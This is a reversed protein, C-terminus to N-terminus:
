SNAFFSSSATNTRFYLALERVLNAVNYHDTRYSEFPQALAKWKKVSHILQNVMPSLISDPKKADAAARLKEAQAQVGLRAREPAELAKLDEAVLTTIESVKAFEEQLMEFLQRASDLEGREKWLYLALERVLNAVNSYGAHHAETPQALVKWNKVSQILSNIELVLIFDLDADATARLKQVQIEIDRRARRERRRATVNPVKPARVGTIKELESM